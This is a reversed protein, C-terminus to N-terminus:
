DKILGGWQYSKQIKKLIELDNFEDEFVFAIMYTGDVSSRDMIQFRLAYNKTASACNRYLECSSSDGEIFEYNELKRLEERLEPNIDMEDQNNHHVGSVVYTYDIRWGEYIEKAIVNGSEDELYVRGNKEVFCWEEPIKVSATLESNTPIEVQKWGNYDSCGGLLSISFLLAIFISCVYLFRKM